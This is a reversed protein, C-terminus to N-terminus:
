LAKLEPQNALIHSAVRDFDARTLTDQHVLLPAHTKLLAATNSLERQLTQRLNTSRLLFDNEMRDAVLNGTMNWALVSLLIGCGLVLLVLLDPWRSTSKVTPSQM